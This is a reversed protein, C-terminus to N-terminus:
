TTHTASLEHRNEKLALTGRDKITVGDLHDIEHSVISAMRDGFKYRRVSRQLTFWTVEIWQPRYVIYEGELSCCGEHSPNKHTSQNVIRPNIFVEDFAIFVRKPIGIQPAALGVVEWKPHEKQYRSFEVKLKKAIDKGEPIKIADCDLKLMPDPYKLIM